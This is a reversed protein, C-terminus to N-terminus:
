QISCRYVVNDTEMVLKFPDMWELIAVASDTSQNRQFFTQAKTNNRKDDLIEFLHEIVTSEGLPFRFFAIQRIGAQISLVCEFLQHSHEVKLLLVIWHRYQTVGMDKLRRQIDESCKM